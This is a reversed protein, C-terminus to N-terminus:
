TQTDGTSQVRMGAWRVAQIHLDLPLSCRLLPCRMEGKASGHLTVGAGSGPRVQTMLQGLSVTWQPSLRTPDWQNSPRPPNGERWSQANTSNTDRLHASDPTCGHAGRGRRHPKASAAPVKSSSGAAWSWFMGDTGRPLRSGWCRAM